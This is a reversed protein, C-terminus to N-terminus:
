EGDQAASLRTWSQAGPNNRYDDMLLALLNADQDELQVVQRVGGHIPRFELYLEGKSRRILSIQQMM